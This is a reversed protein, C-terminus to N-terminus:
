SSRAISPRDKRSMAQTLDQRRLELASRDDIISKTFRVLVPQTLFCIFLFTFSAHFLTSAANDLFTRGIAASSCRGDKFVLNIIPISIAAIYAAHTSILMGFKPEPM